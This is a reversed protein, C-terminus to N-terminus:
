AAPASLPVVILGESDGMKAIADCRGKLISLEIVLLGLKERREQNEVFEVRIEDRTMQQCGTATRKWFIRKDPAEPLHPRQLSKPVEIV